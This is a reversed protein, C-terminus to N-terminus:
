KAAIQGTGLVKGVQTRLGMLSTIVGVIGLIGDDLHHYGLTGAPLLIDLSDQVLQTRVAEIQTRIQRVQVKRDLEKEADGLPRSALAQRKRLGVLKYVSSILSFSIGTFWLKAARRNITAYKDASLPRVKTSHAWVLMDNFLYGAYGLQRGIATFKLVSDNVDLAKVAAQAHELPKGIRMLKRSMGLTSKLASLRAVTENSYGKRLCYFALFRAFYQVARYLKDRGVTTSGVKLSATIAPHLVLQHVVTM